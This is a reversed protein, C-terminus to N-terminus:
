SKLQKAMQELQEAIQQREIDRSYRSGANFATASIVEIIWSMPKDEPGYKADSIKFVAENDIKPNCLWGDKEIFGLEKLFTINDM